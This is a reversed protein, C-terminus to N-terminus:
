APHGARKAKAGRMLLIMLGALEVLVMYQGSSGIGPEPIVAM